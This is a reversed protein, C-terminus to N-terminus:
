GRCGGAGVGVGAGDIARLGTWGRCDTSCPRSPGRPTTTSRRPWLGDALVVALDVPGAPLGAGAAQAVAVLHVLKRVKNGGGLHTRGDRKV